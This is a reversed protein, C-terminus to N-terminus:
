AADYGFWSKIRRWVRHYRRPWVVRVKSVPTGSPVNVWGQTAIGRQLKDILELSGELWKKRQVDSCQRIRQQLTESLTILLHQPLRMQHCAGFTDFSAYLGEAFTDIVADGGRLLLTAALPAFHNPSCWAERSWDADARYLASLLDPAAAEPHEICYSAVQWRFEQNADKFEAAHKGNWAFAIRASDADKYNAIYEQVSSM